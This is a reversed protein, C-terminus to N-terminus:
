SVLRAIWSKRLDVADHPCLEHCCYCRICTDLDMEAREEVITIAEAPCNDACIACGICNDNARPSAVFWHSIIRGLVEIVRGDTTHTGPYRFGEVRLDSLSDGLVEIEAATAPVLRREVAARLPYIHHPDMGVIDAVVMDLAIGDASAL